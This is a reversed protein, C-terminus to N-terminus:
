LAYLDTGMLNKVTKAYCFVFFRRSIRQIIKDNNPEIDRQPLINNQVTVSPELVSRLTFLYLDVVSSSAAEETKSVRDSVAKTESM